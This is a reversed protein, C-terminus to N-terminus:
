APSPHFYSPNKQMLEVLQNYYELIIPSKVVDKMKKQHHMEFTIKHKQWTYGKGMFINLPPMIKDLAFVFKSEQSQKSEYEEIAQYMEPFDHWKKAIKKMAQRERDAKSDLLPQDAFAYTDGAYIEVLDHVLALRLCKDVDLEDFYQALFWATMVLTFTHETDTESRDRKGPIYVVREIFHFQNLFDQLDFLRQLDPRDTNSQKAM